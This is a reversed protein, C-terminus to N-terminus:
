SYDRQAAGEMKQHPTVPELNNLWNPMCMCSKGDCLDDPATPCNTCVWTIIGLKMQRLQLKINKLVM